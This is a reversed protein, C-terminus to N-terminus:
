SLDLTDISCIVVKIILVCLSPSLTLFVGLVIDVAIVLVVVVIDIVVVIVVVAAAIASSKPLFHSLLWFFFGAFQIIVIFLHIDTALVVFLNIKLNELIPIFEDSIM